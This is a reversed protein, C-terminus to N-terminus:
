GGLAVEIDYGMAMDAPVILGDEVASATGQAAGAPVTISLRRTRSVVTKENYKIAFTLPADFHGPAGAPGLLVRVMAGIKVTISGDPRTACERSLQGFVIQHRLRNNDGAAGAFSQLVATGDTVAVYPCYAENPDLAKPAMMSPSDRGGSFMDKFFGGSEALAPGSVSFLGLAFVGLLRIMRM